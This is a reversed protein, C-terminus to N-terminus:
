RLRALVADIQVLNARMAEASLRAIERSEAISARVRDIEAFTADTKALVDNPSGASTSVDPTGFFPQLMQEIRAVREDMITATESM